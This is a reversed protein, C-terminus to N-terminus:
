CEQFFLPMYLIQIGDGSFSRTLSTLRGFSHIDTQTSIVWFFFHKDSGTQHLFYNGVAAAVSKWMASLVFSGHEMQFMMWNFHGVKLAEPAALM